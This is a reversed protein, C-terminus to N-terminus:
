HRTSLKLKRSGVIFARHCFGAIKKENLNILALYHLTHEFYEWSNHEFMPNVVVAVSLKLFYFRTKLLFPM